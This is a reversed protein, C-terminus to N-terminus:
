NMVPKLNCLLAIIFFVYQISTFSYVFANILDGYVDLGKELIFNVSGLYFISGVFFITNGVNFWFFPNRKLSEVKELNLLQNFYSFILIIIFLCGAIYTYTHFKFFSQLFLFNLFVLLPYLLSFVRIANRAKSSNLMRRYIFGLFIFQLSTYINYIWHNSEYYLYSYVWALLEFSLSYIIYNGIISLDDSIRRKYVVWVIIAMAALYFYFPIPM